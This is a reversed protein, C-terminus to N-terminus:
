ETALKLVRQLQGTATDYVTVTSTAHGIAVSKGDPSLAYVYIVDSTPDGPALTARVKRLKLDFLEIGSKDAVLLTSGDPTFRMGGDNVQWQVEAHLQYPGHTKGTSLEFLRLEGPTNCFALFKGDPTFAFAKLSGVTPITHISKTQALNWIHLGDSENYALLDSRPSWVASSDILSMEQLAKIKALRKHTALNWVTLQDSGMCALWTRDPSQAAGSFGDDVILRNTVKLQVPDFQTLESKMGKPNVHWNPATRGFIMSQKFPVPRLSKSGLNWFFCHGPYSFFLRKDNAFDAGAGNQAKISDVTSGDKAAFVRTMGNSLIGVLQRGSPSYHVEMVAPEAVAVRTLLIITLACQSLKM